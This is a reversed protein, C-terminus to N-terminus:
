HFIEPIASAAETGAVNAFEALIAAAERIGCNVVLVDYGDERCLNPLVIAGRPRQATYLLNRSRCTDLCSQLDSVILEGRYGPSLVADAARGARRLAERVALPPYIATLRPNCDYIFTYDGDADLCADFNIPGRYGRDAIVRCLANLEELRRPTLVAADLADSVHSGLYQRRERDKYLQASATIPAIADPGEIMMSIGISRAPTGAAPPPTVAPQLLLPIGHHAAAQRRRWRRLTDDSFEHHRLTPAAEVERRLDAVLAPGDLECSLLNLRVEAKFAEIRAAFNERTLLASVNGSSDSASKVFLAPPPRTDTSGSRYADVLAAWSAIATFSAAPIVATPVHRPLRDADASSKVLRVYESKDHLKLALDAARAAADADFGTYVGCARLAADFQALIACTSPSIQNLEFHVGADGARLQALQREFRAFSGVRFAELDCQVYFPPPIAADVIGAYAAILGLRARLKDILVDYLLAHAEDSVFVVSRLGLVSTYTLFRDQCRYLFTREAEGSDLILGGGIVALREAGQGLRFFPFLSDGRATAAATPTCTAPNSANV